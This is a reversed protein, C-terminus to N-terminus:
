FKINNIIAMQCEFTHNKKNVVTQGHVLLEIGKNMLEDYEKKMLVDPMPHFSFWGNEERPVVITEDISFLASEPLIKMTGFKVKRKLKYWCNGKKSCIVEKVRGRILTQEPSVIFVRDGVQYKSKQQVMKKSTHTRVYAYNILTLVLSLISPMKSASPEKTKRGLECLMAQLPTSLIFSM